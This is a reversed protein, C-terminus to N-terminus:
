IPKKALAFMEYGMDIKDKCFKFQFRYIWRWLFKNKNMLTSIVPINWANVTSSVSTKEEKQKNQSNDVPKKFLTYLRRLAWFVPYTFDQFVIPELGARVLKERMEKETYRRYHGYFDDDWRWEIPNSPIAIILYGGPILLSFSKRLAAEDDKIHEIVDWLFITQYQGSEEFLSRKEIQIGSFSKLNRHAQEIAVTSDDIAKGSWGRKGLYASLDGIGCGADLFPYKLDYKAIFRDLCYFMYNKVPIFNAM